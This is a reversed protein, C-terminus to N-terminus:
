QPFQLTWFAYAHLVVGSLGFDYLYAPSMGERDKSASLGDPTDGFHYVQGDKRLTLRSRLRHECCNIEAM